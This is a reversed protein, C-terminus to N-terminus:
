QTSIDPMNLAAQVQGLHAEAHGVILREVVAAVTMSGQTSHIGTKSCEAESMGRIQKAGADIAQKLQALLQPVDNTVGLAVGALREPADLTRGFHPPEAIADIMLQCKDLWYPIMENMHGVIQLASWEQDGPATRLREAVDPRELLASLQEYVQELRRAQAESSQTTSETTM